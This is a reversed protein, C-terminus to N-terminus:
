SINVRRLLLALGAHRAPRRRGKPSQPVAPGSRARRQRDAEALLGARREDALFRMHQDNM